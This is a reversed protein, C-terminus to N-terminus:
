LGRLRFFSYGNLHEVPLTFEFRDEAAKFTAGFYIWDRLNKAGELTYNKDVVAGEISFKLHPANTVQVMSLNIKPQTPKITSYGTITLSWSELRGGGIFDCDAIFLTWYGNPDTGNFVSLNVNRPDTDLVTYPSQQRGDPQWIGALPKRFSRDIPITDNGTLIRRYVHVDGNIADDSFTIDFGNDSYGWDNELTRGVRNLLTVTNNESDAVHAYYDGNIANVESAIKMHVTLSTVQRISSEVYIIDGAGVPDGDNIVVINTSVFSETIINTQAFAPLCSFVSLWVAVTLFLINSKKM